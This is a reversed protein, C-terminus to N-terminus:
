DFLFLALHDSLRDEKMRVDRIEDILRQMAVADFWACREAYERLVAERSRTSSVRRRLDAVVRHADDLLLSSATELRSEEERSLTRGGHVAARFVDPKVGAVRHFQEAMWTAEDAVHEPRPNLQRVVLELRNLAFGACSHARISHARWAHEHEEQL